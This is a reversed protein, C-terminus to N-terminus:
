GALACFGTNFLIKPQLHSPYFHIIFQFFQGIKLARGTYKLSAELFTKFITHEIQFFDSLIERGTSM